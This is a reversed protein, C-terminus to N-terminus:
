INEMYCEIRSQMVQISEKAEVAEGYQAFLKKIKKAATPGSIVKEGLAGDFIVRAFDPDDKSLFALILSETLIDSDSLDTSDNKERQAKAINSNYIELSLDINTKANAVILVSLTKSQLEAGTGDKIFAEAYQLMKSNDSKYGQCCLTLFAEFMLSDESREFKLLYEHYLEFFLSIDGKFVGTVRLLTLALGFDKIDLKRKQIEVFLNKFADETKHAEEKPIDLNWNDHCQLKVIDVEEELKKTTEKEEETLPITENKGLIAVCKHLIPLDAVVDDIPYFSYLEFIQCPTMEDIYKDFFKLPIKHKLLFAFVNPIGNDITYTLISEVLKSSLVHSSSLHDILYLCRALDQFTLNKKGDIKEANDFNIIKELVVEILEDPINEVSTKYKTFLEWSSEVRGPNNKIIQKIASISPKLDLEHLNKSHITAISYDLNSLNEIMINHIIAADEKPLGLTNLSKIVNQSLSYPDTTTIDTPLHRRIPDFSRHTLLTKIIKNRNSHSTASYLRRNALAAVTQLSRLM